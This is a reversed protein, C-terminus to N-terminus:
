LIIARKGAIDIGYSAQIGIALAKEEQGVIVGDLMPEGFWGKMVGSGIKHLDFADWRFVRELSQSCSDNELSLFRFWCFYREQCLNGIKRRTRNRDPKPLAYRRCPQFYGNPFTPITLDSSHSSSYPMGGQPQDPYAHRVEAEFSQLRTEASWESWLFYRFEV